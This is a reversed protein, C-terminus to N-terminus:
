SMAKHYTNPPKSLNITRPQYFPLPSSLFSYSLLDHYNTNEFSHPSLDIPPSDNISIFSTITQIDNYHRRPKPLSNTDTRTICETSVKLITDRDHIMDSLTPHYLPTISTSPQQAPTTLTPENSDIDQIISPPPLLSFDVYNGCHPSLHGPISENFIVDRSFLYKGHLDRIQWGIRNEEYGVFKAKFRRPGGKTRLEPPIIPFCQCGWVQLHSFDPKTKNMIEHPTTDDPLTSTALRNRLYVFTLATDGWFSLPLKSDALLMQIGDEITRIYQEIKGNQSHAYPATIQVDIGKSAMHKLMFGQTFEKAGDLHVIRIPNGSKLTWSAETKRWAQYAEDKTVISSFNSADDLFATFYAEKRPTITPFPGCTNIHILDCVKSARRAHHSFAAQAAKGILCPICKLLTQTSPKYTIRTAYDGMLMNRTAEQGLHGFRCHWLEISHPAVQFSVYVIV